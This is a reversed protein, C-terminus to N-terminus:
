VIFILLLGIDVVAEIFNSDINTHPYRYGKIKSYLYVSHLFLEILYRTAKM